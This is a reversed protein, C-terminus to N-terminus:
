EIFGIKPHDETYNCTVDVINVNIPLLESYLKREAVTIIQGNELIQKIAYDIIETLTVDNQLGSVLITQGETLLETGGKLLSYIKVLPGTVTLESHRYGNEKENKSIGQYFKQANKKGYNMKVGFYKDKIGKIKKGLTDIRAKFIEVIKKIEDNDSRINSSLFKNFTKDLERILGTTDKNKVTALYRDIDEDYEKTVLNLLGSFRLGLVNIQGITADNPIKFTELPLTNKVGGHGIIMFSITLGKFSFDVTYPQHKYEDFIEMLVPSASISKPSIDMPVYSRPKKMGYPTDLTQSEEAIPSLSIKMKSSSSRGERKSRGRKSVSRNSKASRKSRTSKKRASISTTM